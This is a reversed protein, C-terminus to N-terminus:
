KFVREVRDSITSIIEYNITKIKKAIDDVTILENDWIYVDDNVKADINTVDVMFSDMCITGIIKCKTNNIVVENNYKRRIGDAYGIGVTAISMKKNTKYKRGYSVYFNKDVEKIFSIKTKLKTIPKVKILSNSNYGYMIIGVRVLNCFSLNYNLIGSSAQIHIYKLDFHKKIIELNNKFVKIQKETYSKNEACSLHSYVGELIINKNKLLNIIEKIDKSLVGTRGMGTELELHVKVTQNYEILKKIFNIDSVGITINYKIINPIDEIYPQNLVFIENKFGIKRLDIAEKVLAVGIIKFDKILEIKKNIYTGYSNAKMIYMIEKNKVYKKINEINQKFIQTDIELQRDTM